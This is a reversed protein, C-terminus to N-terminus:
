LEGDFGGRVADEEEGARAKGGVRQGGVDGGGGAGGEWEGRGVAAAAQMVIALQGGLAAPQVTALVDLRTHYQPPLQSLDIATLACAAIGGATFAAADTAGLPLAVRRPAQDQPLGAALGARLALRVLAEDHRAGPALESDVVAFFRSDSTDEIVLAATPLAPLTPYLEAVFRKAGRLGAEESSTALLIVETSQLLPELYAYPSEAVGLLAADRANALEHAFAHLVAVGSLNDGAGPVVRGFHWAASPLLMLSLLRLLPLARRRLRAAPEPRALANALTVLLMLATALLNAVMLLAAHRGFWWFLNFEFASDLHATVVLRRVPAPPTLTALVNLGSALPFPFGLSDIVEVYRV